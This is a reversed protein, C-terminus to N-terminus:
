YITLDGKVIVIKYSENSCLGGNDVGIIRGGASIHFTINNDAYSVLVSSADVVRVEIHVVDSSDAMHLEHVCVDKGAIRGVAKVDGEEYPVYRIMM